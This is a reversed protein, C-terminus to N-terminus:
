DKPLGLIREAIINRQIETTGGAITGGFTSLFGYMFSGEKPAGFADGDHMADEGLLELSFAQIRKSLEGGHLKDLSGEPGPIGKRMQNSLGRYFNMTAIQGEIYMRTLRDRVLGDKILPVGNHTRERCIKLIEPLFRDIRSGGGVSRREFALLTIAIRWGDNVAGVLNEKPVEVDTLFVENFDAEGNFQRIPRPEIGPSKMDMLLVSLGKHKPVTPDTRCLLFCYDALHAFSTWVKQGNIVFHDGKDIARTSLAALDSGAGPESYGQCWVDDGRLIRELHKKKQEETGVQILTPGVMDLGITGISPPAEHTMMEDDYICQEVLSAGRGGYERPWAIGAWGGDYLKRQWARLFLEREKADSPLRHDGDLWGPPLNARLWTRFELRFAEEQPTFEFDM